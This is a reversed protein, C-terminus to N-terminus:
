DARLRERRESQLRLLAPIDTANVAPPQRMEQDASSPAETPGVVNAHIEDIVVAM